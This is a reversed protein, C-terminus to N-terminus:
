TTHLRTMLSVTRSNELTYAHIREVKLSAFNIRSMIDLYGKKRDCERCLNANDLNSNVLYLKGCESCAKAKKPLCAPCYSYYDEVDTLEDDPYYKECEECAHYGKDNACSYCWNEGKPVFSTGTLMEEKEYIEGCISCKFYMKDFCEECFEYERYIDTCSDTLRHCESCPRAIKQCDGFLRKSNLLLPSSLRNHCFVCTCQEATINEIYSALPEDEASLFPLAGLFADPFKFTSDHNTKERFQVDIKQGYQATIIGRGYSKHFVHSGVYKM